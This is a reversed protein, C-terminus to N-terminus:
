APAGPSPEMPQLVTQNRATKPLDALPRPTYARELPEFVGAPLDLRSAALAEEVHRLSTAGVVPAAVAPRTWTWALALQAPAVGLETSLAALAGLIPDTPPGYLTDAVDDAAARSTALPATPRALRGRALPSWPLVAIGQDVCFPLLEREEERYLLNYHVQVTEFPAWGQARATFNLKALQWARVNSAGLHAVKGARVLEDLAQLTEEVPTAEDYCHIQLLDIRELGLRRLSADCSELVNRRSLGAEGAGVPFFLKTAVLVRERAQAARLMRGLVLESRGTSYVNATDFFTVGAELARALVELAAPEDLVWPRWASSGFGMCGLALRPLRLPLTTPSAERHPVRAGDGMTRRDM